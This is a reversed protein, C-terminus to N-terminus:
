TLLNLLKSPVRGELLVADEAKCLLTVMSYIDEPKDCLVCKAVSRRKGEAGTGGKEQVELFGNKLETFYDKTTIIALDCVKGIKKGIKGHIKASKKGLEILCPMIIVRKGPFTSLYDIDALVGDPNSSYSSDIIYIGHKGLKLTMGAQEQSINKCAQSSENISVGLEKAALAAALINQVNQKGLVKVEFNVLEGTKDIVLFSLSGRNVAVSETWIDANVTKNSLSYIKKNKEPPNKSKKYLDLCYKNDGNLILTGDRPLSEALEEGGEASLLNELSGFLALHQENVGTVMGIKPKVIDCLLKIEGKRYAGMEAIFIQHEATLSNIITQAVGIETNTNGGTKLVKYKQSLFNYLFEKTSSKGYSGTIAISILNKHSKIKDAAKKYISKKIFFTPIQLLEVLLFTLFPIAIEALIIFLFFNEAFVLAGLILIVFFLVVLLSAKKTLKPLRWRKKILLFISYAGLAYFVILVLDNWSYQGSSSSLVPLFVLLAAMLISTRPIFVKLTNKPDGKIRDVRYEKLQWFYLCYFGKQVAHVAWLILLIFLFYSTM